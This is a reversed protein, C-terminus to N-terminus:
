SLSLRDWFPKARERDVQCGIIPAGPSFSRVDATFGAFHTLTKNSQDLASPLPLEMRHGGNVMSPGARSWAQEQAKTFTEAIFPATRGRTREKATSSRKTTWTSERM